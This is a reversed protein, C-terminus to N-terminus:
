ATPPARSGFALDLTARPAGVDAAVGTKAVVPAPQLAPLDVTGAGSKLQLLCVACSPTYITTSAELHEPALPHRAESSVETPRFAGHPLDSRHLDFSSVLPAPALLAIILGQAVAFGWGTSQPSRARGTMEGLIAFWRHILHFRSL